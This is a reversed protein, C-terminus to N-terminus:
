SVINPSILVVTGTNIAPLTVMLSNPSTYTATFGPITTNSSDVCIVPIYMTGLNHDVQIQTQSVFPFTLSSVTPYESVSSTLSALNADLIKLGTVINAIASLYTTSSMDAFTGDSNIGVSTIATTLTNATQAAFTNTADTAQEVTALRTDLDTLSSGISSFSQAVNQETGVLQNIETASAAIDQLDTISPVSNIWAAQDSHYKLINGDIPTSVLVDTLDDLTLTATTLRALQADIISLVTFLSTTNAPVTIGGFAAFATANFTGDADVFEGLSTILTGLQAAVTGADIGGGVQEFQAGNWFKIANAARSLILRGYNAVSMQSTQDSEEDQSLVELYLNQITSEGTSNLILNGELNLDGSLDM